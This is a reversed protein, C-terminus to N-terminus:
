PQPLHPRIRVCSLRGSSFAAAHDNHFRANAKILAMAFQNQRFRRGRAVPQVDIPCKARSKVLRHGGDGRAPRTKRSHTQNKADGYL